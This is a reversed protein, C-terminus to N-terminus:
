FGHLFHKKLLKLFCLYNENTKGIVSPDSCFIIPKAVPYGAGYLASIIKYERDVLHAGKLLKGPPKKRLVYEENRYNM